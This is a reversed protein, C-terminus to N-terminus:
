VGLKSNAIKLCSPIIKHAAKFCHLKIMFSNSSFYLSAVWTPLLIVVWGLGMNLLSSSLQYSWNLYLFNRSFHLVQSVQQKWQPQRFIWPSNSIWLLSHSAFCFVFSNEQTMSAMSWEYFICGPGFVRSLEPHVPLPVGKNTKQREMLHFKWRNIM